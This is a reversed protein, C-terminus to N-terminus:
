HLADSAGQRAEARAPALADVVQRVHPVGAIALTHHHHLGLQLLHELLHPSERPVGAARSPVGATRTDSISSEEGKIPGQDQAAPRSHEKVALLCQSSNIHPQAATLTAIFLHTSLRAQSTACGFLHVQRQQVPQQPQDQVVVDRVVHRGLVVHHDRVLVHRVGVRVAEDAAELEGAEDHLVVAEDQVQEHQAERARGLDGPRRLHSAQRILHQILGHM